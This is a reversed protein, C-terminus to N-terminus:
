LSTAQMVETANQRGMHVYFQTTNLNTHGSVTEAPVPM